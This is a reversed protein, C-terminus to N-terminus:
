LKESSSGLSSAGSSKTRSNAGRSEDDMECNRTSSVQRPSGNLAAVVEAAAEVVSAAPAEFYTTDDATQGFIKTPDDPAITGLQALWDTADDNELRRLGLGGNLGGPPRDAQNRRNIASFV